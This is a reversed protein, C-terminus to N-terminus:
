TKPNMSITLYFNNYLITFFLFILDNDLCAQLAVVARTDTIQPLRKNCKKKKENRKNVFDFNLGNFKSNTVKGSKLVSSPSLGRVELNRKLYSYRNKRLKTIMGRRREAGVGEGKKNEKGGEKWDM